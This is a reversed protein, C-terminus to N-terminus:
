EGNYGNEMKGNEMTLKKIKDMRKMWEEKKKDEDDDRPRVLQSFPFDAAEVEVARTPSKRTPYRITPQRKKWLKEGDSTQTGADLGVFNSPSASPVALDTQVAVAVTDSIDFTATACAPNVHCM